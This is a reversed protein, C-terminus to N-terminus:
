TRFSAVDRLRRGVCPLASASWSEPEAVHDAGSPVILQRTLVPRIVEISLCPIVEDDPLVEGATPGPM